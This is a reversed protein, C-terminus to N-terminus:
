LNTRGCLVIDTNLRSLPHETFNLLKCSPTGSQLAWPFEMLCLGINSPRDQTSDQYPCYIIKVIMISIIREIIDNVILKYVGQLTYQSIYGVSSTLVLSFFKLIGNTLIVSVSVSLYVRRCVLGKWRDGVGQLLRWPASHSAPLFLTPCKLM